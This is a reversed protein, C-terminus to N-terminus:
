SDKTYCVATFRTRYGLCKYFKNPYFGEETALCDTTNGNNKSQNLAFLTVAKGFGEGRVKRLSGVNSIYGIGQYNTLTSVAVPEDGKYAFFYKLRNSNKFKYWVAEAVKLYEGLTGYPNQPDDLQYCKDFVQLFVGLDKETTVKKVNHKIEHKEKNPHFMWSDEFKFRYGQDALLIKVPEMAVTNEFYVAPIRGFSVMKNEIESLQEKSLGEKTLTLNWYPSTDTESYTNIAFGLDTVQNYMIDTQLRTYKLLFEYNNM